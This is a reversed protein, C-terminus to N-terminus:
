AAEREAAETLAYLHSIAELAREIALKAAHLEVSAMSSRGRNSSLGDVFVATQKVQQARDCLDACQQEFKTM